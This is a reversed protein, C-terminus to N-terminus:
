HIVIKQTRIANGTNLRLVYLGPTIGNTSVNRAVDRSIIIRGTMDVIQLSAGHCTEVDNIIIHGDAFYAFTGSGTLDQEEVGYHPDFVLKFRSAYDSTTANFTYDPSAILDINAGTINDILHLFNLNLRKQEFHLTYSGNKDAKFKLPQVDLSDISLISLDQSDKSFFVKPSDEFLSFKSLDDGENFSLIAQDLVSSPTDNKAVTIEIYGQTGLNQFFPMHSFWLNSDEQGNSNVIIGSCPAISKTESNAVAILSNGKESLVYYSRNLFADCPLPNGVFNCGAFAGNEPHYSLNCEASYGITRGEFLLVTDLANAYLYSKGHEIAFPTEKFNIWDTTNADFSYLAYGTEQETLFGNETSPMVDERVPSAILDWLHTDEDYANINKKAKVRIPHGHVLQANDELIFDNEGWNITSNVSLRKGALISLTYNGANNLTGISVDEDVIVDASITAESFMGNPKLGDLWNNPNSWLGNDASGLFTQSLSALTTSLLFAVMTIRCFVYFRNNNM